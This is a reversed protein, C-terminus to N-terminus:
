LAAPHHQHPTVALYCIVQQHEHRALAECTGANLVLILQGGGDPISDGGDQDQHVRTGNTTICPVCDDLAEAPNGAEASAVTGDNAPDRITKM